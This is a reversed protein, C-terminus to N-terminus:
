IIHLNLYNKLIFNGKVFTKKRRNINMFTKYEIHSSMLYDSNFM